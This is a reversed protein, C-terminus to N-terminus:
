EVMSFLSGFLGRGQAVKSSASVLSVRVPVLKGDKVLVVEHVGAFGPGPQWSFTGSGQNFTAGVPLTALRGDVVHYAETAGGVNIRVTDGARVSVYRSWGPLTRQALSTQRWGTSVRVAAREDIKGATRLDRGLLPGAWGSVPTEVVFPTIAAGTTAGSANQISFYRSGIGDALGNNATVVWSITHVGNAYATSDFNFLGVAHKVGSYISEPFAAVIDAREGWVGPSGVIVGDIVVSVSGFPPYARATGRVLVWGFNNVIGSVTEGQGPTDIAGFPKFSTSNTATINVSGLPVNAGELDSAYAHLRFSGDGQNPLFNTLLLYGWGGRYQFPSDAFAASVDARADDVRTAQGLFKLGPAEGAVADRWIAVQAIGVDDIAWGTVAISGNVVAGSAPTDLVGIPVSTM